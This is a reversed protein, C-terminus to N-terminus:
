EDGDLRGRLEEFMARQSALQALAARRRQGRLRDRDGLAFDGDEELPGSPREGDGADPDPKFLVEEAGLRDLMRIEVEALDVTVGEAADILARARARRGATAYLGAEAEDAAWGFGNRAMMARLVAILGDIEQDEM